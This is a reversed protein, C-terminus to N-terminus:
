PCQRSENPAFIRCGIPAFELNCEGQTIVLYSAQNEDCFGSVNQHRFYRGLSFSSGSISSRQLAAYTRLSEIACLFISSEALCIRLVAEWPIGMLESWLRAKPAIPIPAAIAVRELLASAVFKESV